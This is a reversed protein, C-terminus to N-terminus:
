VDRNKWARKVHNWMDRFPRRLQRNHRKFMRVLEARSFIDDITYEDYIIYDADSLDLLHESEPVKRNTKHIYLKGM